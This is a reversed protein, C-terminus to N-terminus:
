MLDPNAKLRNGDAVTLGAVRLQKLASNWSGGRPARGISDGIDIPQASRPYIQVLADFVDLAAVGLKSRWLTILENSSLPRAEPFETRARETPVLLDDGEAYGHEQLAKMATNWSGGRPKRGSLLALRDRALGEPFAALMEALELAARPMAGNSPVPRPRAPPQDARAAAPTPRPPRRVEEALEQAMASPVEEVAKIQFDLGARVELLDRVASEVKEHLGVLAEVHGDPLVPVEVRVEVQEPELQPGAALERELEVIRKRLVKPDNEQAQKGIEAIKEGLAEVDLPALEVRAMRQGHKVNASSDFTDRPLVKVREFVKLWIPDWLYAENPELSAIASMLEAREEPTGNSKVWDDIADRDRKHSSRKAILVKCQSIAGKDGAASRQFVLYIGIGHNRGQRVIRGFAGKMVQQGPQPREPLFSEAEELLILLPWGPDKMKRRFLRKAFATAFTHVDSDTEFTSTDLVYRGPHDVVVDAILEGSKPDLPVDGHQGGLVYIDKIGGTPSGDKGARLSWHKGVPDLIVFFMGAKACQEAFRALLYTKGSDSAGLTVYKQIAAYEVPISVRDFVALEQV